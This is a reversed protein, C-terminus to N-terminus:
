ILPQDPRLATLFEQVPLCLVGHRKLRDKGRYLFLAKSQPYDELFAQLGQIDEDRIRSTNKVEIAWFGNPGYVVFDVEVGHRTRWFFLEYSDKSYAMWARLHEAVLGELAAGHIEEPRDLPGRPRISRYVGADFFYFKPHVIIARKARKTFVGLRFGILLDELIQIYDEVVNREVQCDRAVNSTNLVNGHSFSIAELFRAFNGVKRVLGEMQVEERIYLALYTKLVEEPEDSQWVLPLLGQELARPLDFGSGLEAAMFPHLTKLLARGALLDAGTRKLKRASSGTMVFQVGRKEEITSHIVPLLEPVKQIEDLLVVKKQPNGEILENLTEPRGSYRRFQDPQLLDIRLAEPFHAKIWTSKGTGRPGLLFFSQKPPQYFRTILDMNKTM